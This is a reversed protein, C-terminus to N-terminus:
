DHKDKPQAWHVKLEELVFTPSKQFECQILSPSLTQKNINQSFISSSHATEGNRNQVSNSTDRAEKAKHVPPWCKNKEKQQSVM